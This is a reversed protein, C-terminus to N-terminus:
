HPQVNRFTARNQKWNVYKIKAKHHEQGYLHVLSRSKRQLSQYIYWTHWYVYSFVEFCIKWKLMPYLSLTDVDLYRVVSLHIMIDTIYFAICEANPNQVCKNQIYLLFSSNRDKMVLIKFITAFHSLCIINLLYSYYDLHLKNSYTSLTNWLYTIITSRHIQITAM